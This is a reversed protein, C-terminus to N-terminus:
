SNNRQRDLFDAWWQMLATRERIHEARNYAARVKNRETHALQREIVDVGFTHLGHERAENLATSAVARFGHGTMRSHYGLRYLAYLLTNNSISKRPNSGAFVFQSNANIARLDDLVSLAQRSLPVLHTEKMKMRGEPVTWVAAAIDFEPWEAGILETTRVFTLAMLQLGLRTVADGEYRDIAKLLEPLGEPRIAPMHKKAHPILAGRLDAAVDRACRGTAIGYRFVQGCTQVMRHPLETAGRAELKRIVALLETAGIDAIPRAGLDPFIYKELRRVVDLKYENSWRATQNETFERAIIEFADAAALRVALKDAKRKAGPDIGDDLLERAENRRERATRLSVAPYVGFALLKEKGGFHYKMRWLRAGTPKVLLHLGGGDAIKYPKDRPKANKVALETLM